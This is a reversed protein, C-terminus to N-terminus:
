KLNNERLYDELFDGKYKFFGIKEIGGTRGNFFLYSMNKNKDYFFSPKYCADTFWTKKSPCILPLNAKKWHLGDLSIAVCIRAVDINEYGIYFMFYYKDKKVVDCAGVKYSDFGKKSKVMVPKGIKKWVCGDDSEAYSICDPEYKEGCAYWMKFVGNDFMVCPNM